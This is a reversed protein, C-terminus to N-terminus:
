EGERGDAAVGYERVYMVCECIIRSKVVGICTVKFREVAMYCLVSKSVNRVSGVLGVCLYAASM